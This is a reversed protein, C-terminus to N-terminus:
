MESKEWEFEELSRLNGLFDEDIEESLFSPSISILFSAAAELEQWCIHGQGRSEATSPLHNRALYLHVM